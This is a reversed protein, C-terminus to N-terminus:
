LIPLYQAGMPPYSYLPIQGSHLSSSSMSCMRVLQLAPVLSVAHFSAFSSQLLRCGAGRGVLRPSMRPQPSAFKWRFPFNSVPFFWSYRMMMDSVANRIHFCHFSLLIWSLSPGSCDMISVRLLHVWVIFLLSVVSRISVFLVLNLSFARSLLSTLFM